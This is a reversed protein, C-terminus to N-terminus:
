MVIIKFTHINGIQNNKDDMLKYSSYFEKQNGEIYTDFVLELELENGPYIEKILSIDNGILNSKEKICKFIFGEKWVINGNNKLILKQLHLLDTKKFNFVNPETSYDFNNYLKIM